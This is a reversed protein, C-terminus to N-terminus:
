QLILMFGDFNDKWLHVLVFPTHQSFVTCLVHMTRFQSTPTPKKYLICYGARRHSPVAVTSKVPM